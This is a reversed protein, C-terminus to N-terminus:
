GGFNQDDTCCIDTKFEGWDVTEDYAPAVRLTKDKRRLVSGRGRSFIRDYNDRYEKTGAKSRIDETKHSM